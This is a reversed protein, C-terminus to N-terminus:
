QVGRLCASVATSDAAALACDLRQDAYGECTTMFDDGLAKRQAREHKARDVDVGDLRLAVVHDRLSECRKASTTATPADSSSSACGAWVVLCLLGHMRRM